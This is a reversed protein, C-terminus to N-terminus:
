CKAQRAAWREAVMMVECIVIDRMLVVCSIMEQEEAEMDILKIVLMSQHIIGSRRWRRELYGCKLWVCVM